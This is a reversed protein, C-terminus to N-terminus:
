RIAILKAENTLLYMANKAVVPTIYIDDPVKTESVVSGDAPNITLLEGHSGVIRLTDGAMVPATWYVKGHKKEENEYQALQEAWKIKGTPIYLAALVNDTSLVYLFDGAVWPTKLVSIEKDWLRAGNQLVNAALLGNYSASFVVSESVVPFADIDPLSFGLNDASRFALNDSWIEVGSKARLAYIEGSSHPALLMGKAVAPTSSGLMGLTEAFGIHTWIISGDVMNLAYLRNDVTLTYVKGNVITPASRIISGLPRRWLEAGTEANVAIVENYGNTIVLAGDSYAVGGGIVGKRQSRSVTKISWIRKKIDHLDFATVNGQGDLVFVKDDAVIPSALLRLDKQAGKGANVSTRKTLETALALNRYSAVQRDNLQAWSDNEFQSPVAVTIAEMGRDVSLGSELKLVSIRKDANSTDIEEEEGVWDPLASCGSLAMMGTLLLTSVLRSGYKHMM